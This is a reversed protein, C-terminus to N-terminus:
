DMEDRIEILMQRITQLKEVLEHQDVVETKNDKLKQKAGKLTMGREKVLHYILKLQEIDEKTFLRNGKKNKYPKLADFEREWYRIHSINVGFMDAVESISYYIKEIQPKKYPMKSTQICLFLKKWNATFSIPCYKSLM